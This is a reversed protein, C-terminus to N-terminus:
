GIWCGLTQYRYVAEMGKTWDEEKVKLGGGERDLLLLLLYRHVTKHFNILCIQFLKKHVSVSFKPVIVLLLSKLTLYGLRWEKFTM